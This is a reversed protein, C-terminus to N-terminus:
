CVFVFSREFLHFAKWDKIKINLFLYNPSEGKHFDVLEIGKHNISPSYKIISDSKVLLQLETQEMGVWWCPPELRDVELVPTNDITNPDSTVSNCSWFFMLSFLSWFIISEKRMFM